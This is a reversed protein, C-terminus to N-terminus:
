ASVPASRRAPARNRGSETETLNLATTFHAIAGNVDAIGFLCRALGFHGEIEGVRWGIQQALFLHEETLERLEQLNLLNFEQMYKEHLEVIHLAVEMNEASVENLHDKLM